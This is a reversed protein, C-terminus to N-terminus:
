AAKRKRQKEELKKKREKEKRLREKKEKEGEVIIVEDDDEEDNNNVKPKKSSSSAQDADMMVIDGDEEYGSEYEIEDDCALWSDADSGDNGEEDHSVEGDSGVNEADGDEPEDEWEGESDIDYNLLAGDRGFPTRPTVVKSTKSWTGVYGPRVDESFKLLKVPVKERDKLMGYFGSADQSTLTSDNIGVVLQRVSYLPSPYPNYPPIRRKPVSSILSSLSDKLTLSSDSDISVSTSRKEGINFRNIPAVKVGPRITFPHFVKAFDGVPRGGKSLAAPSNSSGVTEKEAGKAKPTGTATSTTSAGGGAISTSPTPSAKKFFSSMLNKSRGLEAKKKQLKEEEAQKKEEKERKRQAKKEAEIADKEAKVAKEAERKKQKETKEVEKELKIRAKEEKEAKEEETLEKKKKGGTKAPKKEKEKEQEDDGDGDEQQEKAKGKGKVDKKKTETSTSASAGGGGGGKKALLLNTQDKESLSQFLEVVSRKIEERETRRREFKSVLEPSLLSTDKIEWVWFQLGTSISPVGKPLKGDRLDEVSLGYNVRDALTEITKKLSDVDIRELIKEKKEKEDGGDSTSEEVVEAEQSDEMASMNETISNALANRIFRALGAPLQSAEQVDKAIAGLHEPPIEPLKDSSNSSSKFFEVAWQIFAARGILYSTVVESKPGSKQKHELKGNKFGVLDNSVNIATTATPPPNSKSSSAKSTSASSSSTKSKKAAPTPKSTAKRKKGGGKTTDEEKNENDVEMVEVESSPEQQMEVDPDDSGSAVPSPLTTSSNSNSNSKSKPKETSTAPTTSHSSSRAPSSSSSPRAPTSPAASPEAM